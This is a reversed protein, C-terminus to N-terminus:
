PYSKHQRDVYVPVFIQPALQQFRRLIDCIYRSGALFVSLILVYSLNCLSFFLYCVKQYKRRISSVSLTAMTAQLLRIHDADPHYYLHTNAVIIYKNSAKVKLVTIHLSTSQRLFDNKVNENKKLIEWLHTYIKRRHVEM